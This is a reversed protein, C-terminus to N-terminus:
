TGHRKRIIDATIKGGLIVLPMGGGPHVSGGVLYLGPYRRSRNPHRLFAAKRSNSSIGYLSGLYSDTKREIDPPLMRSEVQILSALDVDLERSLRALVAERTRRYEEEWDQGGVSPANILVFWNERNEPADEPTMKSTINVYITPDDPMRRREFLDDFERPYDSSFFINHTSLEPFRRGMGWYFVMGSSSPELSRYRKLLPASPDSLLSQYTTTVDANSVVVDFPITKGGFELGEVPRRRGGARYVIRDVATDYHIQVGLEKALQEMARPIAYIGHRAAFAGEGYEVHPIVNLTAPTRYPSSGNYTAYRNFLQRLKASEFFSDNADAMTRLADIGPLRVLSRWFTGTVYTSWEHLSHWLFLETTIDSIRRSYELYRYLHDPSEGLVREFERAMQVPNQYTRLRTGDPYFYRCVTELPLIELYDQLRRGAEEFLQEFVHRYTILSPGTDFRYDGITETFAKGGPGSQKEFVQVTHGAAALRVATSLGGLGAGVIGINAM